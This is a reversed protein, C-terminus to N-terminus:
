DTVKLYKASKDLKIILTDADIYGIANDRSLVKDIMAEDNDIVTIVVGKGSNVSLALEKFYSAPTLDLTERIFRLHEASHAPRQYLTVLGVGEVFRDKMFYIRRLEFRTIKEVPFDKSAVPLTDAHAISFM